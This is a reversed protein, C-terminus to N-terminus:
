KDLIKKLEHVVDQDRKVIDKLIDKALQPRAEIALRLLDMWSHNNDTRIREINDIVIADEDRYKDCQHVDGGKKSSISASPTQNVIKNVGIPAPNAEWTKRLLGFPIVDVYGGDLYMGEKFAGELLFGLKKFVKVMGINTVATGSWIRNLGLSKFGHSILKDLAWTMIGRGWYNVAGIVCAIEASRNIMDIRQLSINGIHWARNGPIHAVIGWVIHSKDSLYSEVDNMPNLPFLGHSNFQTVRPDNFWYRYSSEINGEDISTLTDELTYLYLHYNNGTNVNATIPQVNM